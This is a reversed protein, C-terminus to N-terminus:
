SVQYNAERFEFFTLCRGLCANFRARYVDRLLPRAEQRYEPSQSDTYEKFATITADRDRECRTGGPLYKPEFSELISM